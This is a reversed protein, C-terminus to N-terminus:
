IFWRKKRGINQIANLLETATIGNVKAEIALERLLEKAHVNVKRFQWGTAPIKCRDREDYGTCVQNDHADAKRHYTEVLEDLKILRPDVQM